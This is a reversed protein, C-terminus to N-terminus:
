LWEDNKKRRAPSNRGKGLALPGLCGDQRSERECGIWVSSTEPIGEIVHRALGSRIKRELPGSVTGKERRV